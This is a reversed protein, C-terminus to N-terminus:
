VSITLAAPSAWPEEGVCCSISVIGPSPASPQWIKPAFSDSTAYAAPATGSRKLSILRLAPQGTRLTTFSPAPAFSASSGSFTYRRRRAIFPLVRRGTM